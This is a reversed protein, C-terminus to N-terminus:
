NSGLLKSVPSSSMVMDWFEFESKFCVKLLDNMAVGVGGGLLRV